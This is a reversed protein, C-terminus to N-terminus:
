AARRRRPDTRASGRGARSAARALATSAPALGSVPISGVHRHDRREAQEIGLAALVQPRRRTRPQQHERVRATRGTLQREREDVGRVRREARLDIDRDDRLVVVAAAREALFVSKAGGDEIVRRERDRELGRDVGHRGRNQEIGTAALDRSELSKRPRVPDLEEGLERPERTAGSRLDVPGSKGLESRAAARAGVIGIQGRLELRPSRARRKARAPDLDPARVVRELEEEVLTEASPRGTTGGVGSRTM